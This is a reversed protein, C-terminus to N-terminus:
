RPLAAPPTRPSRPAARGSRLLGLVGFALAAAVESLMAAWSWADLGQGPYPDSAASWHPALHSASVALVTGLGVAAAVMPARPRRRLTFPLSSLALVGLVMGGWFVEPALDGTGQRVHDAGHLVMTALFVLNAVALTDLGASATSPRTAM